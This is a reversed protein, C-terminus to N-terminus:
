CTAPSLRFFQPVIGFLPQDCAQRCLFGAEGKKAPHAASDTPGKPWGQLIPVTWEVEAASHALSHLLLTRGQGLWHEQLAAALMLSGALALNLPSRFSVATLPWPFCLDTVVGLGAVEQVAGEVQNPNLSM